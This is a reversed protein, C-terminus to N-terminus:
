AGLDRKMQDFQEKSIEGNAYRRRLIDLATEREAGSAYGYYGRHGGCCGGGWGFGRWIAYGIVALIILGVPLMFIMGFGGWGGMMGGYYGYGYSNRSAFYAFAVAVVIIVAIAAAAVAVLATPFRGRGPPDCENQM